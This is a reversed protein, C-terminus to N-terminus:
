YNLFIEFSAGLYSKEKYTFEKNFADIRGKIQKTILTYTIYLGLGTGQSRHKTTFYPEFIKSILKESIGGANDYFSIKIKENDRKIEIFFLRNEIQKDTLADKSNYYINMFCQVLENPYSTIIINEKMSFILEINNSKSNGKILDIFGNILEKLDIKKKKTNRNVFNQFVEITNSLYQANSNVSNCVQVVKENNFMGLEKELILGTVQSSIASLPQRWQHAINEIMEGLAVMKSQEVILNEQKKIDENQKKITKNMLIVNDIKVNLEKNLDIVKKHNEEIVRALYGLEDNKRYDIRLLDDSSKEKISKVISNIPKIVVSNFFYLIILLVILMSFIIRNIEEFNKDLKKQVEEKNNQIIIYGLKKDVVKIPYIYIFKAEIASNKVEDFLEYRKLELNPNNRQIFIFGDNTVVIIDKIMKNIYADLIHKAETYNYNIFDMLIQRSLTQAINENLMKLEIESEKKTNNYIYLTDLVLFLLFLIIIKRFLKYKLSNQLQM